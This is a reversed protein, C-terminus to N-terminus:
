KGNLTTSSLHCISFSWNPETPTTARTPEFGGSIKVAESPPRRGKKKCLFDFHGM